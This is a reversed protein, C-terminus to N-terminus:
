DQFLKRSRGEQKQPREALCDPCIWRIPVHEIHGVEKATERAAKADHPTIERTKGCGGDCEVTITKSM